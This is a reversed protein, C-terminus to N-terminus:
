PPSETAPMAWIYTSSRLFAEFLLLRSPSQAMTQPSPLASKEEAM